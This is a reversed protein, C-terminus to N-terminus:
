ENFLSQVARRIEEESATMNDLLVRIRAPQSFDLPIPEFADRLRVCREALELLRTAHHNELNKLGRLAISLRSDSIQGDLVALFSATAQLDNLHRKIRNEASLTPLM